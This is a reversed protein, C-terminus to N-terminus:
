PSLYRALEQILANLNNDTKVYMLRYMDLSEQVVETRSLNGACIRQMNEEMKRRLLPKTLSQELDIRDYGRALGIGLTSPYFFGQQKFAYERDLIKKIHEHITADTGIGNADMLAILDPERLLNPASTRGEQMNLVSPMFVEGQQFNPLLRANWREYTYIELYNKADVILGKTWFREGAIEVDVTTERGRADEACCALFRRTVFEFVKLERGSLNSAHGTPHIPPHARDDHTGQRPMRFGGGLLHQAFGGWTSDQAQKEIMQSFPFKTDFRDTETRPYSILGRIYLAEATEMADNSSMNLLRSANKQLEVTTLPLPRRKSVPRSRAATVTARPQEVCAEYLVMCCLRDFLHVRRWLFAVTSDDRKLQVDIKWFPEPVFNEVRLFRDVVFGLTPFQCSGYSIIKKDLAPFRNQLRLTQLRTFAAGIRLDLERRAEVAHVQQMDLQSPAACAQHIERASIVSFRPRLVEIRRNATRCVQSIEYAINEGERDCDTWLLLRDAQRAQEVLNRHVDKMKENVIRSIPADFLEQPSVSRWSRYEGAFDDEMLHGLVSTMIMECRQGGLQYLFRFNKCYKSRGELVQVEGGGLIQAISRALSPKEAVNLVRM